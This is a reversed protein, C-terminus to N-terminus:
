KITKKCFERKTEYNQIQSYNLKLYIQVVFVDLIISHLFYICIAIYTEQTYVRQLQMPLPVTDDVHRSTTNVIENMM